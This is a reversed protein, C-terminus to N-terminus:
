SGNLFIRYRTEYPNNQGPHETMFDVYLKDINESTVRQGGAGGPQNFTQAPVGSKLIQSKFDAFEKKLATLERAQPGTTNAYQEAYHRMSAEDQFNLLQEEPVGHQHTLETRTARLIAQEARYANVQSQAELIGLQRATAEDVGQAIHQAIQSRAYEAATNQLQAQEAVQRQERAARTLQANEARLRKEEESVAPAAPPEAASDGTEAPTDSDIVPAEIPVEQIPQDDLVLEEVGIDGSGDVSYETTGTIQETTM